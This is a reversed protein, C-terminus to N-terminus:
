FIISLAVHDSLEKLDLVTRTRCIKLSGDVRRLRLDCRQVYPSAEGARFRWVGDFRDCRPRQM